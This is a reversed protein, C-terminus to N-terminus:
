DIKEMDSLDEEEEPIVWFAPNYHTNHMPYTRMSIYDVARILENLDKIHYDSGGSGWSAYNDSSTIWLTPPLKGKKKLNQLHNVWKLIIAPEVYNDWAWQVMTENGVAIIKVVDPYQSTLEVARNIETEDRTSEENRIRDPLATRANKCDMRAGLMVFMEFGPDEKKMQRIAEPLNASEDFHVHYTRVIKIGMASLIKMDEKLQQIAPQIDRTNKRYGGYSIAQYDQAGPLEAAAKAIAAPRQNCSLGVMAAM